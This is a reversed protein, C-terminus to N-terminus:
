RSIDAVKLDAVASIGANRDRRLSAREHVYIFWGALGIAIALAAFILLPVITQQTWPRRSEGGSDLSFIGETATPSEAKARRVVVLVLGYLLLATVAVFLWGKYMQLRGSGGFVISMEAVMIDSAYIWLSAILAYGLSIRAALGYSVTKRGKKVTNM